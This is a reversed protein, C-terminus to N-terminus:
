EVPKIDFPNQGEHVNLRQHIGTKVAMKPVRALKSMTLNTRLCCYEDVAIIQALIDRSARTKNTEVSPTSRLGVLKTANTNKNDLKITTINQM